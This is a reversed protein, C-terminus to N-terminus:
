VVSKRDEDEKITDGVTVFWKVVDSETIGEGIDPLKFQFCM